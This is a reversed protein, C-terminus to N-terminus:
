KTWRQGRCCAGAEIKELIVLPDMEEAHFNAGSASSHGYLRSVRAELLVPKRETRLYSFAEQLAFWSEEMNNGDITMCKIGFARGRDAVHKEGHQTAGDTSIGWGNNTVVILIPLENGPRSSWVLCSAFDAEATGADGGTVITVGTGGHRKQAIATGIATVYQTEITSSVPVVNWERISFHGVFNRGGSFPDHITNKMQRLSGRPDMGMAQMIGSARYHLHFYDHDLGEGKKTQLGLPIAFAEEGPGGLWFYGDSQKYMKILREELLRNRLMLDHIKLVQTRPLRFLDNRLAEVPSASKMEYKQDLAKKM